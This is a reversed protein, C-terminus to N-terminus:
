LPLASHYAQLRVFADQVGLGLSLALRAGAEVPAMDRLAALFLRPDGFAEILRCHVRSFADAHRVAREGIRRNLDGLIGGIAGLRTPLQEPILPAPQPTAPDPADM